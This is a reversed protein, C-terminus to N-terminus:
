DYLALLTGGREKDLEQRQQVSGAEEKPRLNLFGPFEYVGIGTMYKPMM